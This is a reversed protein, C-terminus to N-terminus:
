WLSASTNEAASQLAEPVNPFFNFGTRTEIAAITTRFQANNYNVGSHAENTYIYAVGSASSITGGSFTCRMLLKYFHSPRGVTGGDNSSGSNNTEFLVGSVVYLTDSSASPANNQVAEELSSWVGSNFSNQWQPCQNTYYFTQENAEEVAQRDASACMHGRAYGNGSNYDSTSGSSQWSNPFAPDYSHNENFSGARGLSNSPYAVQHMPYAVWLPCRKTQDMMVTYNRYQKNNYSYTHTAVRRTSTTTNYAYWQTSGFTETGYATCASTNALSLSPVEICGLYQLGSAIPEQGGSSSGGGGSTDYTYNVQVSTFGCAASIAASFAAQGDTPTVTVVTNSVTPTAGTWTSNRLATAYDTSTATFVVSTITVGAGPTITLIQGGYFRTSTRGDSNGGYYNNANTQSSGKVVSMSVDPDSHRWSIESTTASYTENQALNWTFSGNVIPVKEQVLFNKIEWTACQTNTSTSEYRFGIKVLHGVYDDLAIEGSNVFSDLTYTTLPLQVWDAGAEDTLIWLTLRDQPASEYKYYQDFSVAASNVGTLNVWPSTLWSVSANAGSKYATAKMAKDTTNYQWVATNSNFTVGDTTFDVPNSAFSESYPLAKISERRANASDLNMNYHKLENRSLPKNTYNFTYVAKDTGVTITGSAYEGPAVVMLISNADDKSSAVAVERRVTVYNYHESGWSSYALTTEDRPDVATLDIIGDGSVTGANDQFIIYKVTEDTHSSSFVRFDIISGLNLFYVDGNNDGSQVTFPIGVMPMSSVAGGVQERPIGVITANASSNREDYPFYAYGTSGSPLQTPTNLFITKPSTNININAETHSGNLYMGVADNEEWYVGDQELVARTDLENVDFSYHYLGPKSVPQNDGPKETQNDAPTEVVIEEKSCAVVAAATFVGVVFTRLLKKMATSM